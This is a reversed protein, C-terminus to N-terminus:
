QTFCPNQIWKECQVERAKKFLDIHSCLCLIRYFIFLFVPNRKIYKNTHFVAWSDSFFTSYHFYFSVLCFFTKWTFIFVLRRCVTLGSVNREFCAFMTNLGFLYFNHFTQFFFIHFMFHFSIFSPQENSLDTTGGTCLFLQTHVIIIIFFPM